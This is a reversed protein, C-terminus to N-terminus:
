EETKEEKKSFALEKLVPMIDKEGTDGAGQGRNNKNSRPKYVRLHQPARTNRRQVEASGSGPTM